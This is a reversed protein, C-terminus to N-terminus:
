ILITTSYNTNNDYFKYIGELPTEMLEKMSNIHNKYIYERIIKIGFYYGAYQPISLDECGFIYKGAEEPPLCTEAASKLIKWTKAEEESKVGYHWSPKMDGFISEAFYDAEGEILINEILWGHLGEGNHICYWYSGWINHHYEHAFVFPLWKEFNNNMANVNLIINGWIGTGYVGEPMDTNSPYIAVYMTDDDKPLIDYIMNFTALIKDWDVKKLLELQQKAENKELHNTPMKYDEPFPAWQSLVNWYPEVMIKRWTEPNQHEGNIYDELKLYAPILEIKM